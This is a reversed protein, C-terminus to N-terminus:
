LEIFTYIIDNILFYIFRVFTEDYIRNCTYGRKKVRSLSVAFNVKALYFTQASHKMYCTHRQIKKMLAHPQHILALKYNRARNVSKPLSERKESCISGKKWQTQRWSSQHDMRHSRNCFSCIQGRPCGCGNQNSRKPRVGVGM